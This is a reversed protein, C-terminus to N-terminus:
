FQARINSKLRGAIQPDNNIIDAVDNILRIILKATAYGPAAKRWFVGHACLNLV